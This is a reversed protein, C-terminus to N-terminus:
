VNNRDNGEQSQATSPRWTTKLGHVETIVFFCGVLREYGRQLPRYGLGCGEENSEGRDPGGRHRPCGLKGVSRAAEDTRAGRCSFDRHTCGRWLNLFVAWHVRFEDAQSNDRSAASESVRIRGEEGPLVPQRVLLADAIHFNLRRVEVSGVRGDPAGIGYRRRLAGAGDECGIVQAFM